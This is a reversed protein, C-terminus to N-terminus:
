TQFCKLLPDDVDNTLFFFVQGVLAEKVKLLKCVHQSTIQLFYNWLMQNCYNPFFHEEKYM